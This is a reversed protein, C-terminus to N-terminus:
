KMVELNHQLIKLLFAQDVPKLKIVQDRFRAERRVVVDQGDISLKLDSKEPYDKPYSM